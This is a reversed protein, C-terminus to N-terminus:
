SDGIDVMVHSARSVMHLMNSARPERSRFHNHVLTLDAAMTSNVEAMVDCTPTGKASASYSYYHLPTDYLNLILLTYLTHFSPFQM